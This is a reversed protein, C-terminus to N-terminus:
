AKPTKAMMSDTFKFFTLKTSGTVVITTAVGRALDVGPITLLNKSTGKARVELTFTGPTVDRYGAESTFGVGAFLKETAGMVSVDVDPGGPAAHIVRVRAKGSDPIIDDKVVRLMNKAMDQKIVFVTYRTGDMLMRDKEALLLGTTDGVTRVSFKALNTAIERYETVTGSKVDAFLSVNDLFVAADAGVGVANVVRVLSHGRANASDAPASMSTEGQGETKIPTSDKQCAVSAVVFTAALLRQITSHM